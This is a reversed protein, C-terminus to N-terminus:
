RVVMLQRISTLVMTLWSVCRDTLLLLLCSTLTITAVPRVSRKMTNAIHRWHADRDLVHNGPDVLTQGGGLPMEIPEAM